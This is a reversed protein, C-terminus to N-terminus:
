HGEYTSMMSKLLSMYPDAIILTSCKWIKMLLPSPMLLKWSLEAPMLKPLLCHTGFNSAIFMLAETTAKRAEENFGLQNFLACFATSRQLAFVAAPPLEGRNSIDEENNGTHIVVAAM